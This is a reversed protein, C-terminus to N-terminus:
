RYKIGAETEEVISADPREYPDLFRKHEDESFSYIFEMPDLIM